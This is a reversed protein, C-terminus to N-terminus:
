SQIYGDKAKEKKGNIGWVEKEDERERYIYIDVEGGRERYVFINIYTGRRWGKRGKRRM